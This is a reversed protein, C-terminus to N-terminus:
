TEAHGHLTQLGQSKSRPDAPGPESTKRRVSAGDQRRRGEITQFLTWIALNRISRMSNEVGNRVFHERRKGPIDAAHDDSPDQFRGTVRFRVAMSRSASAGQPLPHSRCVRGLMRADGRPLLCEPSRHSAPPTGNMWLAMALLTTFPCSSGEILARTSIPLTSERRCRTGVSPANQVVHLIVNSEPPQRPPPKRERRLSPSSCGRGPFEDKNLAIRYKGPPPAPPLCIMGEGKRLRFDMSNLTSPRGGTSLSSTSFIDTFQLLKPLAEASSMGCSIRHAELGRILRDHHQTQQRESPFVPTNDQAAQTM